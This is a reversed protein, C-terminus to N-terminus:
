SDLIVVIKPFNFKIRGVINYKKGDIVTPKFNWNKVADEGARRLLPHGEVAKSFIVKGEQNIVVFVEVSTKASSNVSCLGIAMAAPPCKLSTKEILSDNIEASTRKITNEKPAEVFEIQEVDLDSIDEPYKSCELPKIFFEITPSLRYGSDRFQYKAKYSNDTVNLIKKLKSILENVENVGVKKGGYIYIYGKAEDSLESVKKQFVALRNKMDTEDQYNFEDVEYSFPQFCIDSKGQSFGSGFPVFLILILFLYKM